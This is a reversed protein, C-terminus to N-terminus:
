TPVWGRPIPGYGEGAAEVLRRLAGTLAAREAPELCLLLRRLEGQRWATVEGALRRGSGTLELIVASRNGPDMVRTVHGAAVLRDALRTITSPELGLAAAVRASRAQGLEALVALVRFQPLSVAGEPVEVSRLALGTLMRTAEQLAEVGDTIEDAV